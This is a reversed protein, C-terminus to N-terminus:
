VTAAVNAPTAAPATKTKLSIGGSFPYFLPSLPSLPSYSNSYSPYSPPPLLPLTLPYLPPLLSPPSPYSIVHCSMIRCLRITNYQM